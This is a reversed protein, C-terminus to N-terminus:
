VVAKAYPILGKGPATNLSGGQQILQKVVALNELGLACAIAELVFAFGSVDTGGLFLVDEGDLGVRAPQTVSSSSSPEARGLRNFMGKLDVLQPLKPGAHVAAFM